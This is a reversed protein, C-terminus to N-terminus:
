WFRSRIAVVAAGRRSEDIEERRREYSLVLGFGSM